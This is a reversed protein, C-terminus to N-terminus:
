KLISSISNTPLICVPQKKHELRNRNAVKKIEGSITRYKKTLRRNTGLLQQRQTFNLPLLPSNYQLFTTSYNISNHPSISTRSIM